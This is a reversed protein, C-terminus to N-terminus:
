KVFATVMRRIMSEIASLAKYVARVILNFPFGLEPKQVPRGELEAIFEYLVKVVEERQRRLAQKQRLLERFPATSEYRDWRNFQM